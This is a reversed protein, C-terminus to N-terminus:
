PKESSEEGVLVKAWCEEPVGIPCPQIDEVLCPTNKKIYDYLPLMVQRMQPHAPKATRLRLVHRLERANMTMVIETKLSNPLVSRAEEPKAGQDILVM